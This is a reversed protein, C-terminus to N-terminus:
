RLVQEQLLRQIAIADARQQLEHLQTGALREALACLKYITDITHQLSAPGDDRYPYIDVGYWGDWELRRLWYFLELTEWLHVSALVMDHDWERFCDNLHLHFLRGQRLCLCAAEAPNEGAMLSHGVDLTVGVNPLGVEQAIMLTRGVTSIHCRSRPEKSKYEVTIRVDGRHAAAEGIADILQTWKTPYDAQFPYDFGDQGLWLQVDAAGTAAVVDMAEKTLRMAEERLAPDPSTFSGQGWRAQSYLDVEVMGIGLGHQKLLAKLAQPDPMQTPYDFAVATLGRIQGARAIHATMDEHPHYGAPVFRDVCPSFSATGSDIKLRYDM